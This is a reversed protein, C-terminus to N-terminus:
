GSDRQVLAFIDNSNNSCVTRGLWALYHSYGIGSSCLLGNSRQERLSKSLQPLGERGSLCCHYTSTVQIATIGEANYESIRANPQLVFVLEYPKLSAAWKNIAERVM